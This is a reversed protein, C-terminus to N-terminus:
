ASPGALDVIWATVESGQATTEPPNVDPDPNLTARGRHVNHVVSPENMEALRQQATEKAAAASDARGLVRANDKRDVVPLDTM